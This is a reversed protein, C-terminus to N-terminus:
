GNRDFTLENVGIGHGAQRRTREGTTPNWWYVASDLGSTVVSQGDPAIALAIVEDNIGAFSIKSEGTEADRIRASGDKGVSALWSGDPGFTVAYVFDSHDTITRIVSGTDVDWIRITTDYSASVLRSGDPRFAISGVVDKHGTLTLTRKGDVTYLFISGSEAPSGGAIALRSGDPSFALDHVAELDDTITLLPKGHSLDWLTVRAYQGVALTSGDPSFAVTTVPSLPGVKAALTLPGTKGGRALEPPLTTTVPLIVDFRRRARRPADTTADPRSGEPMKADVWRRLLAVKADPLPEGELPMRKKPDSHRLTPLLDAGVDRAAKFTDLAIGGSIESDDLNRERHCGTCNAGLIPRVDRWYTPEEAFSTLAFVCTLCTSFFRM